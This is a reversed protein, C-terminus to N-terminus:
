LCQERTDCVIVSQPGNWGNGDYYSFLMRFSFYDIDGIFEGGQRQYIGGLDNEAAVDMVAVPGFPETSFFGSEPKIWVYRLKDKAGNTGRFYIDGLRLMAGCGVAKSSGNSEAQAQRTQWMEEVTTGSLPYECNVLTNESLDKYKYHNMLSENTKTIGQYTIKGTAPLATPAYYNTFKVWDAVLSKFAYNYADDSQFDSRKFQQPNTPDVTPATGLLQRKVSEGTGVVPQVGPPTINNRSSGDCATPPWNAPQAVAAVKQATRGKQWFEWVYRAEEDNKRWGEADNNEDVSGGFAKQFAALDNPYKQIGTYLVIRCATDVQAQVDNPRRGNVISADFTSPQHKECAQKNAVDTQTWREWRGTNMWFMSQTQDQDPVADNRYDENEGEASALALVLWPDCGHKEKAKLIEEWLSKDPIIFQKPRNDNPDHWNVSFGILEGFVRVSDLSNSYTECDRVVLTNGFVPNDGHTCTHNSRDAKPTRGYIAQYIRLGKALIEDSGSKMKNIMSPWYGCNVGFVETDGCEHKRGGGCSNNNDIINYDFSLLCGYSDQIFDNAHEITYLINGDADYVPGGGEMASQLNADICAGKGCSSADTDTFDVVYGTKQNIEKGDKMVWTKTSMCIEDDKVYINVLYYGPTFSWKYQIESASGGKTLMFDATDWAPDDTGPKWTPDIAKQAAGFNPPLRKIIIRKAASFKGVCGLVNGPNNPVIDKGGSLLLTASDVARVAMQLTCGIEGAKNMFPNDEDPITITGGNPLIRRFQVRSVDANTVDRVIRSAEPKAECYSKQNYHLDQTIGGCQDLLFEETTACNRLYKHALSELRNFNKQIEHVWYGFRAGYFLAPGQSSKVTLTFEKTPYECFGSSNTDCGELFDTFEETETDATFETKDKFVNFREKIEPDQSAIDYQAQTLFTRSMVYELTDLDYGMPYVLYFTITTCDGTSSKGQGGVACNKIPWANPNVQFITNFPQDTGNIDWLNQLIFEGYRFQFKNNDGIPGLKASDGIENTQEFSLNDCSVQPKLDPDQWFGNIIDVVAKVAENKCAASGKGDPAQGNICFILSGAAQGTAAAAASRIKERLDSGAIDFKETIRRPILVNRTLTMVDDWFTHGSEVEELKRGNNDQAVKEYLVDGNPATVDETKWISGKNTGIDPIKFSLVVVEDRPNAQDSHSFFNFFMDSKVPKQEVVGVLFAIRYAEELHLSTNLMATRFEDTVGDAGSAVEHCVQDETKNGKYAQYQALLDGVDIVTGPVSTYYLACNLNPAVALKNCMDKQAELADITKSCKQFDSLLSNVAGSEIETQSYPEQTLERYGFFEELDSKLYAKRETDRFIPTEAKTYDVIENSDVSVSRPSQLGARVNEIFREIDGGAQPLITYTPTACYAQYGQNALSDRIVGVNRAAPPYLGLIPSIYHYDDTNKNDQILNPNARSNQPVDTNREGKFLANNIPGTETIFIAKLRLEEFWDDVHQNEWINQITNNDPYMNMAMGEFCGDNFRAGSDRMSTLLPEFTYSTGNFAPTLLKVNNPIVGSIKADCVKNMFAALKPGVCDYWGQRTAEPSDQKPAVGCGHAWSELDPENPGAIAYFETGNTNNAVQALFNIVLQPDETFGIGNPIGDKDAIGFRVIISFGDKTKDVVTTAVSRWDSRDAIQLAWKLNNDNASNWSANDFSSDFGTAFNIGFKDCDFACISAIQDDSLAHKTFDENDSFANFFLIAEVEEKNLFRMDQLLANFSAQAQTSIPSVIPFVLTIAFVVFVWLWRHNKLFM